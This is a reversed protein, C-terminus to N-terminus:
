FTGDEKLPGIQTNNDSNVPASSNESDRNEITQRQGYSFQSNLSYSPKFSFKLPSSPIVSSLNIPKALGLSTKMISLQLDIDNDGTQIDLPDFFNFPPVKADFEEMEKQFTSKSSPHSFSPRFKDPGVKLELSFSELPTSINANIKLYGRFAFSPFLDVTGKIEVRPTIGFTGPNGLIEMGGVKNIDQRFGVTFQLNSLINKDGSLTFVLGFGTYRKGFVSNSNGGELGELEINIVPSNSSFQYTSLEPYKKALPDVSFFRGVRPDHMRYKYNVSNGDGKVEDDKEMSNFGYRYGMKQMIRGDLLVGFPSYDSASQMCVGSATKDGYAHQYVPLQLKSSQKFHTM